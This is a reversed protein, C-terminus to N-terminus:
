SQPAPGCPHDLGSPLPQRRGLGPHGRVGKASTTACCCIGATSTPSSRATRRLRADGRVPALRRRCSRTARGSSCWCRCGAAPRWRGPERGDARGARGGRGAPYLAPLASRARARAADRCQGLGPAQTTPREGAADAAIGALMRLTARYSAPLDAGNWVAPAVLILGAVPPASRAPWRRWRWRRAWARAWCSSRCARSPPARASRRGRGARAGARGHGALQGARPHAGFGPQDYAEVLSATRPPTPASSPSHRAPLRQLRAARRHGGPADDPPAWSDIM